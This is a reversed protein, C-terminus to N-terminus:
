KGDRQGQYRNFQRVFQSLVANVSRGQCRCLFRFADGESKKVRVTMFASNKRDYQSQYARKEAASKM